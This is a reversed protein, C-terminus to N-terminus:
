CVKIYEAIVHEQETTFIQRPAINPKIDVPADAGSAKYKQVYGHLTQHKLDHLAAAERLSLGEAVVLNVASQLVDAPANKHERKPKRNELEDDM